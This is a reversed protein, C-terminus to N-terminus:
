QKTSWKKSLNKNAVSNKTLSLSLVCFIAVLVVKKMSIFVSSFIVFSRLCFLDGEVKDEFKFHSSSIIKM